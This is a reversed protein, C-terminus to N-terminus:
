GIAANLDVVAAGTFHADDCIVASPVPQRAEITPEDSPLAVDVSIEVDIHMTEVRGLGELNGRVWAILVEIIEIAAHDGVDVSTRIVLVNVDRGELKGEGIWAGRQTTVVILIAHTLVVVIAGQMRIWALRIDIAIANPICTIKVGIVVPYVVVGVVTGKGRIWLM